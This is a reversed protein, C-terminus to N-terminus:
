QLEIPDSLTGPAGPTESPSEAQGGSTRPLTVVALGLAIAGVVLLLPLRCCVNM